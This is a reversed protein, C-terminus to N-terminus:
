FITLVCCKLIITVILVQCFNTQTFYIRNFNLVRVPTYWPMPTPAQITVAFAPDRDTAPLHFVTPERPLGFCDGKLRELLQEDLGNIASLRFSVPLIRRMADIFADWQDDPVIHGRYYAELRPNYMGDKTVRSVFWGRANDDASMEGTAVGRSATATAPATETTEAATATSETASAVAATSADAARSRKPDVPEAEAPANRKM